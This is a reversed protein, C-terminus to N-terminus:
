PAWRQTNKDLLAPQTIRVERDGIRLQQGGGTVGRDVLDIFPKEVINQAVLQHFRVMGVFDETLRNLDVQLTDNAQEVGIKWGSTVTEKWTAKEKDDKPLLSRHPLDAEEWGRDLYQRWSRPVPTLRASEIIKLVKDAIAISQAERSIDISAVAEAIVPPDLVTQGPGAIQVVRFAFSTDLASAQSNLTQTIEWSRYALGARMGYSLAADRLAEARPQNKSEPDVTGNPADLIEALTKPKAPQKEAAAAGVTVLLAALTLCIIRSSNLPM